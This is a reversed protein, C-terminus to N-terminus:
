GKGKKGKKDEDEGWDWSQGYSVAANGVGAATDRAAEGSRDLGAAVGDRAANRAAKIALLNNFNMQPLGVNYMEAAQRQSANFRNQVDMASARDSAVNWDQGRLQGAMGGRAQLAQLARQRSSAVIDANLGALAELEDQGSQAGLVAAMNQSGGRRAAELGIGGARSAARSSVQRSAQNAAAQDGATMGGSDYIAQLEDMVDLQTRRGTSDETLGQFASAGAQQAIARDLEPLIEDGYEAAMRNRLQQAEEEKSASFLAGIVGAVAAIIAGYDM